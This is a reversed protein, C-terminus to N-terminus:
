DNKLWGLVDNYYGGVNQKTNERGAESEDITPTDARDPYYTPSPLDNFLSNQIFVNSIHLDEILDAIAADDLKGLIHEKAADTMGGNVEDIVAGGFGVLAEQLVSSGVNDKLWDGVASSALGGAPIASFALDLINGVIARKQEVSDAYEALGHNISETVAGGLLGLRQGNEIAVDSLRTSEINSKLQQSYEILAGRSRDINAQDGGGIVALLAGLDRTRDVFALESDDGERYEAFGAPNTLENLIAESHANFVNGIAQARGQENFSRFIDPNDGPQRALSVAVADAEPGEARAVQNFLGGLADPQAIDDISYNPDHRIQPALSDRTFFSSGADVRALFENLQQDDLTSLFNTATEPSQSDGSVILTALAGAANRQFDDPPFDTAVTPEDNLAYNDVLHQAIKERFERSVANSPAADLFEMFESARNANEPHIDHPAGSGPTYSTVVSDLGVEVRDAPISGNVYGSVLSEAIATRDAVSIKGSDVANNIREPELWTTLADPDQKVTEALLQERYEPTACANAETYAGLRADYDNNFGISSSPGMGVELIRAAEAKPDLSATPTPSCAAGSLGDVTQPQPLAGGDAEAVTVDPVNVSPTGQLHEPDWHAQMREMPVDHNAPDIDPNLEYLHQVTINEEEAISRVTDGNKVPREKTNPPAATTPREAVAVDGHAHDPSSTDSTNVHASTDASRNTGASGDISAM